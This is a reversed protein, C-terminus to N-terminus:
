YSKVETKFNLHPAREDVWEMATNCDLLTQASATPVERTIDHQANGIQSVTRQAAGLEGFLPMRDTNKNM